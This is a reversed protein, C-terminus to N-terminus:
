GKPGIVISDFYFMENECYLVQQAAVIIKMLGLWNIQQNKECNIM